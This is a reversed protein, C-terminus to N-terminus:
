RIVHRVRVDLAYTNDENRTLVWSLRDSQDYELLIVQSGKSQRLSQSYTLYVRDSIRKGITLRADASLKGSQQSQDILMPTIQFTEVGFTQEVAKQVNSSIPSTLLGAMRSQLLTREASDPSKLSRLEADQASQVDGLLMSVIDVEPLPPDSSLDYQLRQMTGTARLTIHYTQGPARARTEAEVDFSPEIRAPNSFDITGRTVIYRRGEFWIEGREVEARGLLAPKDVTGRLTLDASSTIRAMKNDIELSSPAVIRLDFRLPFAPAAAVAVAATPAAATGAGTGAFEVLGAGIDMTRRMSARRVSVTGSLLPDEVTGRLALEADVVSRFGAPYRLEMAEGSATLDLQSPWLGQLGIRGGFVAKGNAVTATLDELRIGSGTFAIRGNINDISHPLLMHRLRGGIITASGGVQPREFSGSVDAVVEARGGARIDSRYFGQLIKLNAAGDAQLGFSEDALNVEGKIGLRTDEGTLKLQGIRLTSQDLDFDITGDNRLAYDFLRLDLRDVHASAAIDNLSALAGSIRLTGSAVASAFPSLGTTFLRVYPDLSTDNVRLSIEAPYKGVLTVKGTGSVALRSSAAEFEFNADDGRMAIRGTVDGIGEDKVYLDRFRGKVDYTPYTFAGSGGATFDVLGTLPTQPFTLLDISEIPIQRADANFSYTGAWNVRAAGRIAGTGKRIEIGDFWVGTGDFRLSGSASSIREDYAVGPAIALTGFGFPGTYAGYLHFEATLDGDLKYKDLGFAHRWDVLAWRDGRIRANIEEGKDKRPYGLSFRGEARMEAQGKRVVADKVDVYGNEVTIHSQGSGWDVDWARMRSAVVLGEIRPSRFANLLVGDFTGAGGMEIPRTPSGFLTMIGALLRDSEQWDTSTVHFPIVSRDGYATRGQFEVFTTSTAVRSPALDIWEPGYSYHVSGGIPVRGLPPFPDGFVHAVSRDPLSAPLARGQLVVVPVPVATVDGHGQHEAFHGLPWELLNHGTARGALRLGDFEMADSFVGLDVDSYTVDFRAQAPAPKGLPAMLYTFRTVGGYFGSSARTVEFRNPTWVLSGELQPFRYQNLGAEASRFDGKLERGGKFLHFTGSFHADGDLTFREHEWWIDRQRPLHVDSEVKYLQEPWHRIDVVGTCRTTAGDTDLEIRDLLIKGDDIRFWTRLAAAMPLYRQVTVTGNSSRSYGRYGVLKLVTVDLNRVVTSWPTGHDEYTFQGRWAHVYAASVKIPSPGSSPTNSGFRPFNHRGGPFTEVKMQWDTLEVSIINLERRVLSWLPMAVDIERAKFFPADTPKLGEIVLDRVVFHGDFLRVSLGGIHLPRDIRRSGASEARARLSPVLAALDVSFSTVIGAALVGLAIIGARRAHRGVRRATDTVTM